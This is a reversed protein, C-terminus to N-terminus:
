MPRPAAEGETAQHCIMRGGDRRGPLEDLSWRRLRSALQDLRVSRQEIALIGAASASAGDTLAVRRPYFAVWGTSRRAAGAAAPRHGHEAAVVHDAVETGGTAGLREAAYWSVRFVGYRAYLIVDGTM